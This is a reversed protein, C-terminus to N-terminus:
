QEEEYEDAKHRKMKDFLQLALEATVFNVGQLPLAPKIETQHYSTKKQDLENMRM